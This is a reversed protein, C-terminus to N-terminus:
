KSIKDKTPIEQGPVLLASLDDEMDLDKLLECGRPWLTIGAGVQTIKHASEYLNVQISADAGLHSLAAALAVGGM